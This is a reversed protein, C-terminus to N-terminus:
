KLQRWNPRVLLSPYIKLADTKGDNGKRIQKKGTTFRLEKGSASMRAYNKTGSMDSANYLGDGNVDMITLPAPVGTAINVLTRYTKSASPQPACVENGSATASGTAPKESIIELTNGGNFFTPSTTVREGSVPLDLYWGQKVSCSTDTPKCTYTVEQTTLTWFSRGTSVGSGATGLGTGATTNDAGNDVVEAQLVSRGSVTAPTPNSSKIAVKGANAGTTEIQYRTNDLISYFSQVSTDTRDGETLNQGTGFAVMLGGVTRNARLVPPTTIPQRNTSGGSTYSATFLPSGGFAVGWQSADVKSIDFKWMNGRLDGAYVFDPSGDGNVDLFEPTSLGNGVAEAGTTAAPITFLSQNGDLYQILLVPRENTSNYGNGTVYAWRGNNLRAIQKSLQQNSESVVPPGFIHGIDAHSNADAPKSPPVADSIPAATKDMVVLSAANSETFNTAPAPVSSSADLPGPKTVDLVFFGRGGAGLTGVLYTRWDPTSTDGINIDGSQPSGDVYYRHEYNTNTLASLNQVVGHPVYAIKETGDKASFGHLMGDNGGVYLMPLRGRNNAAFTTYSSTSYGSSPAGVYWIASNVIDGQRNKRNRFTATTNALSYNAAEKSQDGRIFNVRDEGRGDGAITAATGVTGNNLWMQQSATSTSSSLNSWKFSIGTSTPQKYSLVLRTSTNVTALKDATSLGKTTSGGVLGWDPNPTFNGSTDISNSTVYGYWRNDNSNGDDAAIYSTQFSQTGVRSVSGSASTFGSIPATTDVVIDDFIDAFVSTLDGTVPYYKGRSNIAMHWMEQPRFDDYDSDANASTVDDWKTSGAALSAFGSDYMGFIGGTWQPSTSSNECTTKSSGTYNSCAEGNYTSSSAGGIKRMNSATSGYGITYQVLHQWEAPDNKPNWYENLTVSNSGSTFTENGSKRIKPIVENSIGPQLDTAWFYFGIDALSPYAYYTHTYRTSGGSGSSTRTTVIRDGYGDRYIRTQDVTPDATPTISYSKVGYPSAPHSSTAPAPTPLAAISKGDFNRVPVDAPNSLTPATSSTTNSVTGLLMDSKFSTGTLGSDTYKFNWGGDTLFIHYARRCSIPSSDATGPTANWPSDAGTTQMYKGASWALVQSPTTGSASLQGLWTDFATKKAGSFKGMANDNSCGGSSSPIGKCAFSQWALRFQDDYKTTNILVSRLGEQVHQIRTKVGDDKTGMSGSTDISM